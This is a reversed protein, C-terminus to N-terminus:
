QENQIDKKTIEYNNKILFSVCASVYCQAIFTEAKEPSIHRDLYQTLASSKIEELELRSLNNLDQKNNM